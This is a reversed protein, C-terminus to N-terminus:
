SLYHLIDNTLNSISAARNTNMHINNPLSSDSLNWIDQGRVVIFLKDKDKSLEQIAKTILKTSELNKISKDFEISHYPVTQIICINKALLKLNEIYNSNKEQLSDILGKFRKLWYMGGGHYQFRPDLFVLPYDVRALDQHLNRIFAEKLDKDMEESKVDMQIFGPNLMLIYVKANRIDGIYPKPILGLHLKKRNLEGKEIESLLGKFGEYSYYNNKLLSKDAPLWFPIDQPCDKWAQILTEVANKM